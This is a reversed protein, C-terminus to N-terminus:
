HWATSRWCDETPKPPGGDDADRLGAPGGEVTMELDAAPGGCPWAADDEAAAPTPPLVGPDEWYWMDVDLAGGGGLDRWGDVDALGRDAGAGGDADLAPPLEPPGGGGSGGKARTGGLFRV